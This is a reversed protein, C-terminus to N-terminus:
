KGELFDNELKEADLNRDLAGFVDRLADVVDDNCVVLAKQVDIDDPVGDRRSREHGLCAEPLCGHEAPNQVAGAVNGDM